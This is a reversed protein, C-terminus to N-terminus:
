LEVKKLWLMTLKDDRKGPLWARLTLLKYQKEGLREKKWIEYETHHTEFYQHCPINCLVDCNEEDFRVSEKARGWFHSVGFGKSNEEHKRGCKECVYGRKKRLYQSFLIDTRRRKITGFSM